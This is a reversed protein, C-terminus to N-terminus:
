YVAKLLASVLEDAENEAQRMADWAKQVSAPVVPTPDFKKARIEPAKRASTNQRNRVVLDRRPTVVSMRGGQPRPHEVSATESSSERKPQSNDNKLSTQVPRPTLTEPDTLTEPKRAVFAGPKANPLVEGEPLRKLCEAFEEASMQSQAGLSRKRGASTPQAFLDLKLNKYRRRPFLSLLGM